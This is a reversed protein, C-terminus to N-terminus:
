HVAAARSGWAYGDVFPAGDIEYAYVYAAAGCEFTEGNSYAAARMKTALAPADALAARGADMSRDLRPSDSSFAFTGAFIVDGAAVDFGPAGLCFSTIYGAHGGFNGVFATLRWHGPTVSFVFTDERLQGGWLLPMPISPSLVDPQRDSPGVRVLKLGAGWAHDTVHVIILTSDAPLSAVDRAGVRRVERHGLLLPEARSNINAQADREQQALRRDAARQALQESTWSSIPGSPLRPDPPMAASSTPPLARFALPIDIAGGPPDGIWRTTPLSIENHFTRRIDAPMVDAGVLPSLRDAVAAQDLNDFQAGAAGLNVVRWGRVVMCNEYNAFTAHRTMYQQQDVEFLGPTASAILPPQFLARTATHCDELASQEDSLSAGPRNFYIHGSTPSTLSSAVQSNAIQASWLGLLFVGGIIRKM